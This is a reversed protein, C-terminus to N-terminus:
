SAKREQKHETGQPRQASSDKVSSMSRTNSSSTQGAANESAEERQLRLQNLVEKVGSCNEIAEEAARKMQRSSVTGSLRVEGNEVAIDIESADIDGHEMLIQCVEEKIREDSRSYGKPGKGWYKGQAGSTRSSPSSSGYSTQAASSSAGREPRWSQENQSGTFDSIPEDGYSRGDFGRPYAEYGGRQEGRERYPSNGMFSRGGQFQQSRTGSGPLDYFNESHSYDEGENLPHPQFDRDSSQRDGRSRDRRNQHQPRNQQQFRM